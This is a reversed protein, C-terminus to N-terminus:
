GSGAEEGLGGGGLTKLWGCVHVDRLGGPCDKISPELHFLTDGYKKHRESTLEVLGAIIAKGERELM